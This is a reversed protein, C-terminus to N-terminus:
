DEERQGRLGECKVRHDEPDNATPRGRSSNNKMRNVFIESLAGGPGM